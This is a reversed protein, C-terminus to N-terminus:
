PLHQVNPVYHLLLLNEKDIELVCGGVKKNARENACFDLLRRKSSPINEFRLSSRIVEVDVFTSVDHSISGRFELLYKQSRSFVFEAESECVLYGFIKWFFNLLLNPGDARKHQKIKIRFVGSYEFGPYPRELDFFQQQERLEFRQAAYVSDDLLDGSGCEESRTGGTVCFADLFAGVIM